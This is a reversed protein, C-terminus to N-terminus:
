YHNSGLGFEAENDRYIAGEPCKHSFLSYGSLGIFVLCYIFPATRHDMIISNRNPNIGFFTLGHLSYTMLFGYLFTVIICWISEGTDRSPVLFRFGQKSFCSISENEMDDSTIEDGISKRVIILILNIVALIAGSIISAMINDSVSTAM